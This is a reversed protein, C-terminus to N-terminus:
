RTHPPRLCHRRQDRDPDCHVIGEGIYFWDDGRYSITFRALGIGIGLALLINGSLDLFSDLRRGFETQLFKARAIEGDCGDLISYLQFIAAGLVFGLYSGRLFQLTGILPLIFILVSWTSPTMPTKLLGRSIFRSVRRNVYRSVLGDQTKGNDRLFAREAAPIEDPTGVYRWPLESSEGASLTAAVASALPQWQVTKLSDTIPALAGRLPGISKRFAFVRTSLVLDVPQQERLFEAADATLELRGLRADRPLTREGQPVNDNWWVCVELLAPQAETEAFEQLTLALRHLQSLGAIQWHASADALILVRRLPQLVSTAM